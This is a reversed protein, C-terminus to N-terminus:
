APPWGADMFAEFMIQKRELPVGIANGDGYDSFIFGGQPTAWRHLLERAERQIDEVTGHPLTKQIDCLSEFCVKGQFREGIEDIGLATPQQLNVVDLGVEIWEAVIDNVKGCSHIWMHMGGEHVADIIRKYRPKFFTRFMAVSTASRDQTGWDDCVSFAHIRGKGAAAIAQVLGVHYDTIKDLLCHVEDPRLYMDELAAQYGHLFYLREFLCNGGSCIVYRDGTQALAEDFHAYRAPLGPDPAQFDPLASWDALPHGKVQGMNPVDSKEWRCGWADIQEHESLDEKSLGGPGVGFTDNHGLSPFRVPLRDPSDFEIARQVVEYSTMM